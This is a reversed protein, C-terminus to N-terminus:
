DTMNSSQEYCKGCLINCLICFKKFPFSFKIVTTEIDNESCM